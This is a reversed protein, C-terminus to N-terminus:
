LDNLIVESEYKWVYGGAKNREGICCKAISSRDIGLTKGAVTESGWTRIYNGSLDFQAVRKGVKLGCAIDHEVMLGHKRAHVSNESNTCWELNEVHNNKKNGDIHNVQGKNQPNPIFAMAVLRHVTYKKGCLSVYYYGNGRDSQKLIFDCKAYKRLHKNGVWAQISKIRGYTSVMYRGEYGAIDRWIEEM